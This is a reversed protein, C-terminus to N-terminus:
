QNGPHKFVIEIIVNPVKAVLAVEYIKSAYLAWSTGTDAKFKFQLGRPTAVLSLWGRTLDSREASSWSSSVYDASTRVITQPDQPQPDHVSPAVESPPVNPPVTSSSMQPLAASGVSRVEVQKLVQDVTPAWPWTRGRTLAEYVNCEAHAPGLYDDPGGKAHDHALHWETKSWDSADALHM